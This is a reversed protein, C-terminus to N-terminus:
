LEPLQGHQPQLACYMCLIAGIPLQVRTSSDHCTCYALAPCVCVCLCTKGELEWDSRLQVLLFPGFADAIADVQVELKCQLGGTVADERLKYESM